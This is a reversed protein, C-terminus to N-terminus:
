LALVFAPQRRVRLYVNEATGISNTISALHAFCQGNSCQTSYSFQYTPYESRVDDIVNIRASTNASSSGMGALYSIQIENGNSDEMVTPYLTGADQEGSASISGMTWFSGDTFHLVEASSDYTVYTGM